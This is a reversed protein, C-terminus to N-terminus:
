RFKGQPLVMVKRFQEAKLGTLSEVYGTIQGAKKAVLVKPTAETLDLMVGETGIERLGSGRTRPVREAPQRQMDYVKGGLRFGFVVRAVLSPDALDSRLSRPDKEDGTTEGYLAFCIADLLTSKGAGTPGNILFLPNPGLQTFDLKQEGAFPGFAQLHLYLPVM